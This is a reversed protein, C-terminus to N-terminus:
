SRSCTLGQAGRLGEVVFDGEDSVVYGLQLDVADDVCCVFREEAAAADVAGDVSGCTRVQIVLATGQTAAFGTIRFNGGGVVEGALFDDM